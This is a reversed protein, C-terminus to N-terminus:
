SSDHDDDRKKTEKENVKKTLDAVKDHLKSLTPMLADPVFLKKHNDGNGNRGNKHDNSTKDGFNFKCDKANHITVVNQNKGSELM